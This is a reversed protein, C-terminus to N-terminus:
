NLHSYTWDDVVGGFYTSQDAQFGCTNAYSWGSWGEVATTTEPDPNSGGAFNGCVWARVSDVDIYVASSATSWSDYAVYRAPTPACQADAYANIYNSYTIGSITGGDPSSTTCYTSSANAAGPSAALTIGITAAALGGVLFM